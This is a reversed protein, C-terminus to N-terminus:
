RVGRAARALKEIAREDALEALKRGAARAGFGVAVLAVIPMAVVAVIAATRYPEEEPLRYGYIDM